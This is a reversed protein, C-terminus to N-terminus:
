INNKIKFLSVKGVNVRYRCLTKVTKRKNTKEFLKWNKIFKTSLNLMTYTHKDVTKLRLFKVLFSTLNLPKRPVQPLNIFITVKFYIKTVYNVYM